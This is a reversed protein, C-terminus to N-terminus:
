AALSQQDENEPDQRDDGDVVPASDSVGIVSGEAIMANLDDAQDSLERATRAADEAATRNRRIIEGLADISRNVQEAGINQERAAASIEQVLEATRRIEPVLDTLSKGASVSIEVTSTSLDQIEVAADRSREALKRVEAAVVAFGNGHEGARAAEVAANLALLDTQRAIEQIFGIRQAIEEMAKVAEAVREGSREAEEAVNVAITETEAASSSTQQTTATMETMAASAQQAAASQSEAGSGIADAQGLLSQSGSAVAEASTSARALIETLAQELKQTRFVNDRFVQLADAVRGIEDRRNDFGPDASLDGSALAETCQALKILPLIARQRIARFAFIGLAIGLLATAIM